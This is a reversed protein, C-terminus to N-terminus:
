DFTYMYVYIILGRYSGGLWINVCDADTSATTQTQFNWKEDLLNKHCGQCNVKQFQM